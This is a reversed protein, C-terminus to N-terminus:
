AVVAEECVWKLEDNIQCGAIKNQTTYSFAM